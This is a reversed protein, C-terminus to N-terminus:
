PCLAANCLNKGLSTGSSITSNGSANNLTYGSRVALIATGVNGHSLNGTALGDYVAIGFYGNKFAECDRVTGVNAYIGIYANESARSSEVLLSNGSIGYVGNASAASATVLGGWNVAIGRSGNSFAQVREVTANGADIGADGFGRVVGNGIRIFNSTKSDIGDGSGAPACSTVPSGSCVTPGVLSFGNLDLTVFSVLIQIATVNQPSPEGTVDLNGTLQYSGPQDITVPSGPADGPSVGGAM